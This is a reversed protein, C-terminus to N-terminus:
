RRAPLGSTNPLICHSSPHAGSVASHHTAAEFYIFIAPNISYVPCHPSTPRPPNRNYNRNSISTFRPSARNFISSQTIIPSTASTNPSKATRHEGQQQQLARFQPRPPFLLNSKPIAAPISRCIPARSADSANPLCQLHDLLANNAIPISLTLLAGMRVYELRELLPEVIGPWKDSHLFILMPFFFDGLYLALPSLSMCIWRAAM